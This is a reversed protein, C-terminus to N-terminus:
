GGSSLRHKEDEMARKGTEMAASMVSKEASLTEKARNFTDGIRTKAESAWAKAKDKTEGARAAIMERTEVGSRPATLLAIGAGVLGRLGRIFALEIKM